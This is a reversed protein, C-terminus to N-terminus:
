DGEPSVIEEGDLNDADGTPLDQTSGKDEVKTIKPQEDEVERFAIYRIDGLNTWFGNHTQANRYVEGRNLCDFFKEMEEEKQLVKIAKDDKYFMQLEFIM